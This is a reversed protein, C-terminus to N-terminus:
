RKTLRATSSLHSARQVQLSPALCFRPQDTAAPALFNCYCCQLFDLPLPPQCSDHPLPHSLSLHGSWEWRPQLWDGALQNRVSTQNRAALVDM